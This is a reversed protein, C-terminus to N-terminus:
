FVLNELLTHARLSTFLPSPPGEARLDAEAVPEVGQITRANQGM